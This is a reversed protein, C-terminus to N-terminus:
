CFQSESLTQSFKISDMERNNLLYVTKKDSKSFSNPSGRDNQCSFIKRKYLYRGWDGGQAKLAFLLGSLAAQAKPAATGFCPSDPPTGTIKRSEDP